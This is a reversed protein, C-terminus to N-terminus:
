RKILKRVVVSKATEIQIYYVGNALESIDVKEINKSENVKIIQGDIALIKIKVIASNSRNYINILGNTPNPFVVFKESVKIECISTCDMFTIQTSDITSCGADAVIVSVYKIGIGTGSSDVTLTQTTSGDNWLYTDFGAGPDLLVSQNECVTTDTPLALIPSQKLLVNTNISDNLHDIDNAIDLWVKLTRNGIANGQFLIPTIFSFVSDPALNSINTSGIQIPSYGTLQYWVPLQLSIDVNGLNKIDIISTYYSGNCIITDILLSEISLNLVSFEDAGIDPTLNNRIDGDIDSNISAIHKGKLAVGSGIIHLDVTNIFGPNVNISNTDFATSSKWLSLTSYSTGNFKGLIATPCYYNNYNVQDPFSTINGIDICVSGSSVSINNNIFTNNGKSNLHFGYSFGALLNISNFYVNQNKSQALNIGACGVDIGSVFNNAILGKVTYGDANGLFIGTGVKMAIRNQIIVCASDIYDATIGGYVPNNTIASIINGKVIPSSQYRIYTAGVGQNIFQNNEIIIGESYNTDMGVNYVGVGGREFLNNRYVLNNTSGYPALVLCANTLNSSSYNTTLINGVFLINNSNGDIYFVTRYLNNSTRKITLNKFTIFRSDTIKITFNNNSTSIGFNLVVDTSDSTSSQFTITNLLSSGLVSDITLQENYTGPSVNFVVPGNVGYINLDNVASTFTTYDPNTGGITKTGSLQAFSISPFILILVILFHTLSKKM